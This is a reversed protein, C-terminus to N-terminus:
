KEDEDEMMIKKCHALGRRIRTKVTSLPVGLIDAIDRQRLDQFYYLVICERQEQSLRQLMALIDIQQEVQGTKAEEIQEPIEYALDPVSRLYDVVINHAIQYLWTSFKAMPVFSQISKTLHLFTEQTLDEATERNGVRYYIYMYIKQYYKIVIKQLADRNGRKAQEVLLLDQM